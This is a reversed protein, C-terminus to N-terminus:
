ERDWWKGCDSVGCKPCTADVGMLKLGCKYPLPEGKPYSELWKEGCNHCLLTVEYTNTTNQPM